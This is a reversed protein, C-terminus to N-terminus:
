KNKGNKKVEVYTFGRTPAEKPQPYNVAKLPEFEICEAGEDSATGLFKGEAYVRTGDTFLVKGIGEKIPAKSLQWWCWSPRDEHDEMKHEVVEPKARILVHCTIPEGLINKKM